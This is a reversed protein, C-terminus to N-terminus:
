RLKRTAQALMAEAIREPSAVYAGRGIAERLAQVREHRVDDLGHALSALADVFSTDGCLTATDPATAARFVEASRSVRGARLVRPIAGDQVQPPDSENQLVPKRIASRVRQGGVISNLHNLDIKIIFM